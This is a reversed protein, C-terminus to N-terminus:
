FQGLTGEVFDRLAHSPFLLPDRVLPLKLDLFLRLLTGELRM